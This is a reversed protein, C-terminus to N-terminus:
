YNWNKQWEKMQDIEQSQASIIAQSMDIIEQHKASASAEQAMQIAGVHHEIMGSIFAKDFADGSKGKLQDVMEQMSTGNHQMVMPSPLPSNPTPFSKFFIVTTIIGLILGIIGTTLPSKM